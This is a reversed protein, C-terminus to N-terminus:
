ALERWLDAIVAYGEDSVPVGDDTGAIEPLSSDADPGDYLQYLDLGPIGLKEWSRVMQEYLAVVYSNYVEVDQPQDQYVRGYYDRARSIIPQILAQAPSALEAEARMPASITMTVTMRSWATRATDVIALDKNGDWIFLNDYTEAALYVHAEVVNLGKLDHKGLVLEKGYAPGEILLRFEADGAVRNKRVISSATAHLQLGATSDGAMDIRNREIVSEAVTGLAIGMGTALLTNEDLISVGHM